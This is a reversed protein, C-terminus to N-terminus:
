AVRQLEMVHADRLFVIWRQVFERFDAPSVTLMEFGSHRRNCGKGIYKVQLFVLDAIMPNGRTYINGHALANRLLTLMSTVLMDGSLAQLSNPIWTEVDGEISQIEGSFCWSAAGDPCLCSGVFQSRRLEHLRKAAHPFRKNDEIPHASHDTDLKLREFPIVLSTSAAMLLLTVDRNRLKAQHASFNLVDLCRQPFDSIFNAYATM